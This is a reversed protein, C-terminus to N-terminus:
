KGKCLSSNFGGDYAFQEGRRWLIRSVVHQRMQGALEIEARFALGMLRASRKEQVSKRSGKSDHVGRTSDLLDNANRSLGHFPLAEVVAYGLVAQAICYPAQLGGFAVIGDGVHSEEKAIRSRSLIGLLSQRGLALVIDHRIDQTRIFFIEIGLTPYVIV